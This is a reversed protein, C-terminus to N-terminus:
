ETRSSYHERRVMDRLLDLLRSAVITQQLSHAAEM